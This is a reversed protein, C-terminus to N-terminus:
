TITQSTPSFIHIFGNIINFMFKILYKKKVKKMLAKIFETLQIEREKLESLQHNLQTVDNMLNQNQIALQNYTKKDNYKDIKNQIYAEMKPSVEKIYLIGAPLYKDKSFRKIMTEKIYPPIHYLLQNYTSHFDNVDNTDEINM